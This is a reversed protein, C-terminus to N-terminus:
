NAEVPVARSRNGYWLTFAWICVPLIGGMAFYTVLRRPDMDFTDVLYGTLWLSLSSAVTFFAIDLAFVRGLFHDPVKLQILVNSYTWNLSAGVLRLMFGLSAIWLNPALGIVLWALPILVYGVMILKRLSKASEDTFVKGLVPGIVAGVGSAAFMIGLSGAGEQGVTFLREAYV